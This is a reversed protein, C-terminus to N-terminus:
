DDQRQYQNFGTPKFFIAEPEPELAKGLEKELNEIKASLSRVHGIMSLLLAKTMADMSKLQSDFVEPPVPILVTDELASVTAMRPADSILAMEGFMKGPGVEGLLSEKGDSERTVRVKGSQILYACNGKEGESFVRSGKKFTEPKM